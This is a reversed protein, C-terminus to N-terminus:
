IHHSDEYVSRTKMSAAVGDTEPQPLGAILTLVAFRCVGMKIM